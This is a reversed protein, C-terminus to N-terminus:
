VPIVRKNPDMVVSRFVAPKKLTELFAVIDRIEKDNFIGHTGVPPMVTDAKYVRADYIYNFLWEDDRGAAGIESLDPGINGALFGPGAQGMVHCSLCAVGRTRDAVLKAGNAADGKIPGDLKRPRTPAAPSAHPNALTNFKAADRDPWGKYRTWPQASVAAKSLPAPPKGQAAARDAFPGNALVFVIAVIGAGVILSLGRNSM